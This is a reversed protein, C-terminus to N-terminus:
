ESIASVLWQRFHFFTSLCFRRFRFCSVSRLIDPQFCSYDIALEIVLRNGSRTIAGSLLKTFFQIQIPLSIEQEFNAIKLGEFGSSFTPSRSSGLHVTPDDRWFSTLPGPMWLSLRLRHPGSRKGFTPTLKQNRVRKGNAEEQMCPLQAM